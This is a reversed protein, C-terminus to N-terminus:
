PCGSTSYYRGARYRPLRHFQIDITGRNNASLSVVHSRYVNHARMTTRLDALFEEAAMSEAAMVEVDMGARPSM